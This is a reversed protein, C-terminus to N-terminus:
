IADVLAVVPDPPRVRREPFKADLERLIPTSDTVAIPAGSADEGILQPLLSVRPKPLGEDERSGSVIWAYPIRRYRLTALLKRSYPSGHIGVVRLRKDPM